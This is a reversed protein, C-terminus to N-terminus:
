LPIQFGGGYSFLLKGHYYTKMGLIAEFNKAMSFVFGWGILPGGYEYNQSAHSYHLFHGGGLFFFNLYPSRALFRYTLEVLQLSISSTAGYLGQITLSNGWLMIGFSPGYAPLSQDFNPLETPVLSHLVLGVEFSHNGLSQKEIDPDCLSAFSVESLLLM